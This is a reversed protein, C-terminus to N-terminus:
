PQVMRRAGTVRDYIGTVGEITTLVFRRFDSVWAEGTMVWRCRTKGSEAKGAMQWYGFVMVQDNFTSRRNM